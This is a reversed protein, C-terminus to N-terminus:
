GAARGDAWEATVAHARATGQAVTNVRDPDTIVPAVPPRVREPEVMVEDATAIGPQDKARASAQDTLVERRAPSTTRRAVESPAGALPEM